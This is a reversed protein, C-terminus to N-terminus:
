RVVLVGNVQGFGDDVLEKAVPPTVWRRGDIVYMFKYEGVPLAIVTSWIGDSGAQTMPHATTSWSNFSGAVAVSQVGPASLTFQVPQPTAQPPEAAKINSSAFLIWSLTVMRLWTPM